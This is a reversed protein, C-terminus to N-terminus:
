TLERNAKDERGPNIPLSVVPLDVM